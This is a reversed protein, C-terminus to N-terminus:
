YRFRWTTQINEVVYKMLLVVSCCGLSVLYKYPLHSVAWPPSHQLSYKRLAGFTVKRITFNPVVKCIYQHYRGGRWIYMSNAQMQTVEGKGQRGGSRPPGPWLASVHFPRHSVPFHFYWLSSGLFLSPLVKQSGLKPIECSVNHPWCKLLQCSSPPGAAWKGSGRSLISDALHLLHQFTDRQAISRGM